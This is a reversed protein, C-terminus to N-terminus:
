PLVLLASVIVTVGFFPKVPLTAKVADPRGLPTVAVKVGAEVVVVLARVNEAVPVAAGPVLVTVMVPVDPLRVCVVVTLRVTFAAGSKLREADVFLTLM